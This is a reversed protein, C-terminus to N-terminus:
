RHATPASRGNSGDAQQAADGDSDRPHRVVEAIFRTLEDWYSQHWLIDNHGAGPVLALRRSASGAHDYAARADAPPILQDETGHLVLLPRTGARLKRLPCFIALDEESFPDPELGRRRAFALLDTFGSEFVVGAILDPSSRCLEAACASGLSRGHVLLPRVEGGRRLEALVASALPRADELCRCLSPSGTSHGYGRYDVVALDAGAQLFRPALGDYDAVVEGNGHFFLLCAVSGPAQHLRLHLKAGAVGVMLDRAGQPPPGADHRPFFLTQSFSPQDFLSTGINM